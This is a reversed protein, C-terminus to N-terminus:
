VAATHRSLATARVDWFLIGNSYRLIRRLRVTYHVDGTENPWDGGTLYLCHLGLPM